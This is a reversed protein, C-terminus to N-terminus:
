DAALQEPSNAKPLEPTQEADSLGEPTRTQDIPIKIIFTTGQGLQSEVEIAGGHKEVIVTQAIALGQGTGKGVAKTTFFPAFIRQIDEEAVGTGNDSIRIEAFPTALHTSIKIKGKQESSEGLSEAIAHASNVVMNLLVQNLEGPLCSVPPLDPDFETEMEAVYKWENRAVMVTNEIANSLDTLAMESVGPHSFEKMARVINAVRDVGDLTQTIASPIEELLYEVDADDLSTQLTQKAKDVDGEENLTAILAQCSQLVDVLDDCATQVFRTNDGVYQIPTNIEHAIGAALEGISELKQAQALRLEIKELDNAQGIKTAIELDSSDDFLCGDFGAEYAARDAQADQRDILCLVVQCQRKLERVAGQILERDIESSAVIALLFRSNNPLQMADACSAVVTPQADLDRLRQEWREQRKPDSEVLLTKM